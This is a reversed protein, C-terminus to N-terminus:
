RPYGGGMRTLMSRMLGVDPDAAIKAMLKKRAVATQEGHQIKSELVQALADNHVVTKTTKVVPDVQRIANQHGCKECTVVDGVIEEHLNGPTPLPRAVPPMFSGKESSKMGDPIDVEHEGGDFSEGMTMAIVAQRVPTM